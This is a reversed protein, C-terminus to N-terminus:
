YVGFNLIEGFKRNLSSVPSLFENDLEYSGDIVATDTRETAVLTTAAQRAPPPVSFSSPRCVKLNRSFKGRAYVGVSALGSTTHLGNNNM